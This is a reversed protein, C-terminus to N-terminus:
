FFVFRCKSACSLGVLKVTSGKNVALQLYGTSSVTLLIEGMDVDSYHRSIGDINVERENCGMKWELEVHFRRTGCIQRFDDYKINLIANDYSDIKTVITDLYNDVLQPQPSTRVRLPSYAVGLSSLEEGSALRRVIDCYQSYALFSGQEVNDPFPVSVVTDCDEDLAMELTTKSSTVFYHNRYRAVLSQQFQTREKRSFTLQDSGVDIIHIAGEPFSLCGYRIISATTKNDNWSQLHSLDFIRVDPILSCLRGKVMASYFEREGWDTTLTVVQATM